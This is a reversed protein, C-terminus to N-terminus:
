DLISVLLVLVSNVTPCRYYIALLNLYIKSVNGCCDTVQVKISPNSIKLGQITNPINNNITYGLALGIVLSHSLFNLIMFTGGSNFSKLYNM